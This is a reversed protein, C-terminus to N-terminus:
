TLRPPHPNRLARDHLLALLAILPRSKAGFSPMSGFEQEMMCRGGGFMASSAVPWLMRKTAPTPRYM